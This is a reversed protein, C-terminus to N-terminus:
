SETTEAESRFECYGFATVLIHIVCSSNPFRHFTHMSYMLAVANMSYFFIVGEHIVVKYSRQVASVSLKMCDPYFFPM